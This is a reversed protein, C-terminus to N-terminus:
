QYSYSKLESINNAYNISYGLELSDKYAKAVIFIKGLQYTLFKQDLNDKFM